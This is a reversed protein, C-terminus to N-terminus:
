PSLGYTIKGHPIAFISSLNIIEYPAASKTVPKPSISKLTKSSIRSLCLILHVVSVENEESQVSLIFGLSALVTNIVICATLVQTTTDPHPKELTEISEIVMINIYKLQRLYM